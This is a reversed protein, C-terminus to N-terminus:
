PLSYYKRLFWESGLMLLVVLFWYFSRVPFIYNEVLESQLELIGSTRLSDNLSSAQSYVFFDGGSNNAIDQLLKDNRITNTLEMSSNSVLFEGNQSDLIRDGVRATSSYEYLGESLRPLELRYNGNGTNEMNFSRTQGNPGKIEVEIIANDEPQEKENQLSAGIFPNEATSFSQKQPSIRLNRNDPDSSTWAVLNSIFETVYERHNVNTSQSFRFWGWPLIHGRRINGIEVVSVVPYDTEVGDYLASFLTIAQTQQLESRLPSHLSPTELLNIEPLELIPQDREDLVQHLLIPASNRTRHSIIKSTRIQRSNSGTIASLEFYLTPTTDINELFNYAENNSPNGHIIILDFEKDREPLEEVFKSNSLSTLTTVENSEDRQIISRIAKVDPHIQYAVHLIKTKSDLVDISFVQTNNTETWEDPLPTVEIEYQRLGPETLETEFTVQKLQDDTEFQLQKQELVDDGDKLSVNVSNNAFGSQSIEADIVHRTNTYGTNNTVINTVSIDRIQVTDGIAITYIPISSNFASIAPNRGFTIIGDSILVAAQFDNEMELLSTVPASLNTRQEIGALSDPSFPHTQEGISFYEIDANTFRDFDIEELTNQYTDLGNYSGKTIGISESNDLFVAIKSPIDVQKSSYFYPNLLLLLLLLFASFRLSILM